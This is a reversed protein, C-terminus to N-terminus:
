NAMGFRWLLRAGGRSYRWDESGESAYSGSEGFAELRAAPTLQWGLRAVFLYYPDGSTREGAYDFSQLGVELNVAYDAGALRPLPGSARAQAGASIFNSPDFYGNDVDKRWDLWRLVGGFEMTQAERTRRQLASLDAAMRRNDDSLEWGTLEASVRWRDAVPGTVGGSLTDIVISNDILPVSYRYPERRGGIWGEWAAGVPFRYSLGWDTVSRGVAPRELRDTGVMADLRHRGPLTWDLRAQISDISGREGETRVDYAAYGVAIGVGNSLRIGAEYRQVTLLNRETDDMQDWGAALWPVMARRIARQLEAVEADDPYLDDLRDAAAAAGAINGEWLDLYALGLEADRPTPLGAAAEVYLRRAATHQGSWAYTQALGLTAAAHGPHESLIALYEQRAAVQDGSWSLTRALGLQAEVDTSDRAILERFAEAAERYRGAWSLVKAREFRAFRNAPDLELVRDYREIAAAHRGAWSLQQASESLLVLDDPTSELLQDYIALAGATDGANAAARAAALRDTAPSAADDAVSLTGYVFTALLFVLLRPALRSM